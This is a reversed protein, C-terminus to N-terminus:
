SFHKEENEDKWYLADERPGRASKGKPQAMIPTKQHHEITTRATQKRLEDVVDGKGALVLTREENAHDRLAMEVTAHHSGVRAITDASILEGQVMFWRNGQLIAVQVARLEDETITLVDGNKFHIARSYLNM